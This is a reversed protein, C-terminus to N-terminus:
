NQVVRFSSISDNHPSSFNGYFALGPEWDEDNHNFIMAVPQSDSAYCNSATYVLIEEGSGYDNLFSSWRNNGTGNSTSTPNTLNICNGGGYVSFPFQYRIGSGNTGGWACFYYNPCDQFIARAPSVYGLTMSLSAVAAAATLLLKKM